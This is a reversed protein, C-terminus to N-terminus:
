APAVTGEETGERERWEEITLVRVYYKGNKFGEETPLFGLLFLLLGPRRMSLNLTSLLTTMLATEFVLGGRDTLSPRM